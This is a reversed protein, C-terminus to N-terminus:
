GWGSRALRDEETFGDLERRTREAEQGILNLYWDLDSLSDGSPIAKVINEAECRATPDLYRGEFVVQVRRERRSSDLSCNSKLVYKRWVPSHIMGFLISFVSKRTEQHPRAADIMFVSLHQYFGSVLTGRSWGDHESLKLFEDLAHDIIKQCLCRKTSRFLM